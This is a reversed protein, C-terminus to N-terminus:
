ESIESKLKFKSFGTRQINVRPDLCKPEQLLIIKHDINQPLNKGKGDIIGRFSVISNGTGCIDINLKESNLFDEFFIELDMIEFVPGVYSIAMLGNENERIKVRRQDLKISENTKKNTLVVYNSFQSDFMM